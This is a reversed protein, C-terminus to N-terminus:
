QISAMIAQFHASDRDGSLAFIPSSWLGIDKSKIEM